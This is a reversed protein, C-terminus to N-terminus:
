PNHYDLYNQLILTAAIQDVKGKHRSPSKRMERMVRHAEVSSLREDWLTTPLDFAQHLKELFTHVRRAASGEEGRLHLPHGVVMASVGYADVIDELAQFAEDLRSYEITPLGQAILGMPDSIAVGLRKQGYDIALIRGQQQPRPM